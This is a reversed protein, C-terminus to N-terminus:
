IDTYGYLTNFIIKRKDKQKEKRLEQKTKKKEKFDSLGFVFIYSEDPMQQARLKNQYLFM